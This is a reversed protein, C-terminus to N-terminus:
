NITPPVFEFLETQRVWVNEQNEDKIWRDLKYHKWEGPRIFSRLDKPLPSEKLGVGKTILKPDFQTKYKSLEISLKKVKESEEKKQSKHMQYLSVGAVMLGASAGWLGAHAEKQENKPAILAGAIAGGVAALATDRLVKKPRTSCGVSLLIIICLTPRFIM